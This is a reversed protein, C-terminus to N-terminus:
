FYEDFTRYYHPLFGVVLYRTSYRGVCISSCIRYIRCWPYIWFSLLCVAAFPQKCSRLLPKKRWITLLKLAQFFNLLEYDTDAWYLKEWFHEYLIVGSLYFTPCFQYSFSNGGLFMRLIGFQYPFDIYMTRFSGKPSM